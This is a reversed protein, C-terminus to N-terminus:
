ESLPLLVEVPDAGATGLRQAPGDLHSAPTEVAEPLVILVGPVAAAPDSGTEDPQRKPHFVQILERISLAAILLAPVGVALFRNRPDSLLLVPRGILPVSAEVRAQTPAELQFTWPDVVENADGKTTFTTGVQPVDSIDAIRHTVLHSIGTAPPPVYTIVDGTALEDVPVERAIALAGPDMTGTMSGTTIVYLHFGLLSPVVVILGVLTAVVMVLISLLRGALRRRSRPAPRRARIM